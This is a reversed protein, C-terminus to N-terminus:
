GPPHRGHPSWGPCRFHTPARSRCRRSLLVARRAPETLVSRILGVHGCGLCGNRDVRRRGGADLLDKRCQRRLQPRLDCGVSFQPRGPGTLDQVVYAVGACRKEQDGFALDLDDLRRGLGGDQQPREPRSLEGPLDVQQGPPRREHLRPHALGAFDDLQVVRAQQGEDLRVGLQALDEHAGEDQPADLEQGLSEAVDDHDARDVTGARQPDLLKESAVIM